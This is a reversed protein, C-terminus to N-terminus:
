AIGIPRIMSATAGRVTLPLAIFLFEYVRDRSLEECNVWEMIPIGHDRILFPHVPHPSGHVEMTPHVELNVTDGGLARIGREQLWRAGELSLGAGICSQMAEEDPWFKMQGTRVLVVDGPRVDVGHHEVAAELETSGVSFGAPLTEYGVVPPIDFLIGRAVLPPLQSADKSLAGFDGLHEDAAEGGYWEDQEGVTVHCLADIHTGTHMTGIILESVFGFNVKNYQESLFDLDGQNREGRPTRYTVVDFVPHAAHGPMRRWWGSALDYIRGKRPINLVDLIEKGTVAGVSKAM